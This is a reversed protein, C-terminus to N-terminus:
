KLSDKVGTWILLVLWGLAVLVGSTAAKSVVEAKIKRWSEADRIDKEHALRHGHPDGNPFAAILLEHTRTFHGDIHQMIKNEHKMVAEMVAAEIMLSIKDDSVTRREAADWNSDVM